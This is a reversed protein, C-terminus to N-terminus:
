ETLPVAEDDQVERRQQLIRSRRNHSALGIPEIEDDAGVGRIGPANPVRNLLEIILVAPSDLPHNEIMRAASAPQLSSLMNRTTAIIAQASSSPRRAPRSPGKCCRSNSAPITAAM